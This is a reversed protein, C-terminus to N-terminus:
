MGSLAASITRERWSKFGGNAVYQALVFVRNIDKGMQGTGMRGKIQRMHHLLFNKEELFDFLEPVTFKGLQMFPVGEGTWVTMPHTHVVLYLWGLGKPNMVRAMESIAKKWDLSWQLANNCMIQDISGSKFNLSMMDGTVPEVNKIKTVTMTGQVQLYADALIQKHRQTMEKAADLCIIKVDKVGSMRLLAAMYTEYLGPGSGLSLFTEKKGPGKVKLHEMITQFTVAYALPSEIVAWDHARANWMARLVEKPSMTAPDVGLAVGYSTSAIGVKNILGMHTLTDRVFRLFAAGIQPASQLVEDKFELHKYGKEKIEGIVRKIDEESMQGFDFTPNDNNM